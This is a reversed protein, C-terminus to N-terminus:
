VRLNWATRGSAREEQFATDLPESLQALMAELADSLRKTMEAYMQQQMMCESSCGSAANRKGEGAAGFNSQGPNQMGCSRKDPSQRTFSRRKEDQKLRLHLTRLLNSNQTNDFDLYKQVMEHNGRTVAREFAHRIAREVRSQTTGRKKAIAAYLACIKGDSYYPDEDFFDMADHIYTFGKVSAPIGIELLVNVVNDRM